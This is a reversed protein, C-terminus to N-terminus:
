EGDHITLELCALAPGLQAREPELRASKRALFEGNRSVQLQGSAWTLRIRKGRRAAVHM